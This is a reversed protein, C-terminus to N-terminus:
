PQPKILGLAVESEGAEPLEQEIEAREIFAEQRLSRMWQEFREQRKARLLQTRIRPAVEELPLPKDGLRRDLKILHLGRETAIPGRIEGEEMSFAVEELAPLLDGKKFRGLRGGQAATPDESHARALEWFPEGQRLAELLEECRRYAEQRSSEDGDPSFAVFIQSLEVAPEPLFEELREYYADRVEAESVQVRSVVEFNYVRRRLIQDRLKERYQELTLGERELLRDFQERTLNNKAMVDAVAADLEKEEVVIGLRKAQQIQLRHDILQDLVKSLLKRIQEDQREKPVKARIQAIIPQALEQVESLTIIDSNVQAVVRDITKPLRPRSLLARGVTPLDEMEPPGPKFIEPPGTAQGQASTELGELSGFGVSPAEPIEGLRTTPTKGGRCGALLVVALGLAGLFVWSRM